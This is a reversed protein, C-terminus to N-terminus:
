LISLIIHTIDKIIFQRERFVAQTGVGGCTGIPSFIFFYLSLPFHTSHPFHISHFPISNSLTIWDVMEHGWIKWYVTVIGEIEWWNQLPAVYM